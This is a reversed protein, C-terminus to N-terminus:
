LSPYDGRAGEHGIEPLGKRTGNIEDYVPIPNNVSGASLLSLLPSEQTSSPAVLTSAVFAEFFKPDPYGVIWGWATSNGSGCIKKRVSKAFELSIFQVFVHIRLNKKGFPRPFSISVSSLM